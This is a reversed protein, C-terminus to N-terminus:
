SKHEIQYPSYEQQGEEEKNEDFNLVRNNIIDSMIESDSKEGRKKYISYGNKRNKTDNYKSSSKQEITASFTLVTVVADLIKPL